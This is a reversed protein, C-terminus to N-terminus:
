SITPISMFVAYPFFQLSPNSVVPVYIERILTAGADIAQGILPPMQDAVSIFGGQPIQVM